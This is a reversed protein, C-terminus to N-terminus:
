SVQAHRASHTHATNIPSEISMLMMHTHKETHAHRQTHKHTKQYTMGKTKQTKRQMPHAACGRATGTAPVAGPSSGYWCAGACVLHTVLM